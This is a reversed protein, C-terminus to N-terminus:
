HVASESSPGLSTTPLTGRSWARRPMLRPAGLGEACLIAAGQSSRLAGRLGVECRRDVVAMTAFIVPPRSKVGDCHLTRIFEPAAMGLTYKKTKMQRLRVARDRSRRSVRVPPPTRGVALQMALLTLNMVLDSHTGM